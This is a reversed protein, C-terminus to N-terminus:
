STQWIATELHGLAHASLMCVNVFVQACGIRGALWRRTLIHLCGVAWSSAAVPRMLLLTAM